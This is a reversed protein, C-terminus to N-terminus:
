GVWTGFVVAGSKPIQTTDVGVPYKSVFREVLRDLNGPASDLQQWMQSQDWCCGKSNGAHKCKTFPNSQIEWIIKSGLKVQGTSGTVCSGQGKALIELISIPAALYDYGEPLTSCQTPGSTSTIVNGVTKCVVVADVADAFDFWNRGAPQLKIEKMCSGRSPQTVMDMFEFGYLAKKKSPKTAHRTHLLNMSLGHLLHRFLFADDADGHIRTEGLPTLHSILDLADSHAPVFPIQGPLIEPYYTAYAQSMHLMLSLKPVLWCRKSGSDYLMAPEKAADRLLHTYNNFPTFRVVHSEYRFNKELSGMLALPSSAGAQFLVTYGVPQLSKENETAGTYAITSPSLGETGLNIQAINCWGLFCRKTKFQQWDETLLRNKYEVKYPNIQGLNCTLLHFQACDGEIATPYILTRYSVFVVGGDTICYFEAAALSLILDFSAELGKGFSHQQVPKCQLVTCSQFLSQWCSPGIDSAPAMTLKGHIENAQNEADKSLLFSVDREAFDLTYIVGSVSFRQQEAPKRVARALWHWAEVFESAGLLGDIDRFV